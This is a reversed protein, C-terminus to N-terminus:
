EGVREVTHDLFQRGCVACYPIAHDPPAVANRSGCRRCPPDATAPYDHHEQHPKCYQRGNRDFRARNTCGPADCSMGAAIELLPSDPDPTPATM